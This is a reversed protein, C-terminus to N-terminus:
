SRGARLMNRYQLFAPPARLFSPLLFSSLPLDLIRLRLGAREGTTGKKHGSLLILPQSQGPFFVPRSVMVQYLNAPLHASSCM